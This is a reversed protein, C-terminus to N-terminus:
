NWAKAFPNPQHSRMDIPQISLKRSSHAKKILWGPKLKPAGIKKLGKIKLGKKKNGAPPPPPPLFALFCPPLLAPLFAPLFSPLFHRRAARPFRGAARPLSYFSPGLFFFPRFIVRWGQKQLFTESPAQSTAVGSVASHARLEPQVAHRTRSM